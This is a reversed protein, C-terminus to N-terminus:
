KNLNLHLCCIRCLVSAGADCVCVSMCGNGTIQHHVLGFFCINHKMRTRLNATNYELFSSFSHSFSHTLIREFVTALHNSRYKTTDGNNRWKRRISEASRNPLFVIFIWYVFHISNSIFVMTRWGEFLFVAMLVVAVVLPTSSRTNPPPSLPLMDHILILKDQKLYCSLWGYIIYNYEYEKLCFFRFHVPCCWYCYCFCFFQCGFSRGNGCRRHIETQLDNDNRQWDTTVSFYSFRAFVGYFFRGVFQCSITTSTSTAYRKNIIIITNHVVHM